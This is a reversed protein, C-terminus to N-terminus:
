PAIGYKQRIWSQVITDESATIIRPVYMLAAWVGQFPLRNTPTIGAGLRLAGTPDLASPATADGTVVSASRVRLNGDPTSATAFKQSLYTATGAVPVGGQLVLAEIAGNSELAQWNTGGNQYITHGVETTAAFVRTSHMVLPGAATTTPKFVTYITSGSGDHLPKWFSAPDGSDYWQAGALTAVLAGGLAADAAPLAVQQASTAQALLAGSLWCSFSAVKSSVGDVAFRDATFFRGGSFIARAQQTLTQPALERRTRVQRRSM